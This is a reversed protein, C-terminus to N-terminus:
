ELLGEPGELVPIALGEAQLAQRLCGAAEPSALAVCEPLFERCQGLLAEHRSQAALAVVRFRDPHRRVIDLTNVGISGTSGLIAVGQM